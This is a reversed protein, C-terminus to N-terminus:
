LTPDKSKDLFERLKQPTPMGNLRQGNELILTPVGKVAYQNATHAMKSIDVEEVSLHPYEALLHDLMPGLQKCPQCWPATFKLLKM